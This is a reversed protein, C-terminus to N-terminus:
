KGELQALAAGPENIAAIVFQTIRESLGNWNGAGYRTCEDLAIQAQALLRGAEELLKLREADKKAEGSASFTLQDVTLEDSDVPEGGARQLSQLAYRAQAALGNISGRQHPTESIWELLTELQRHVAAPILIDSM